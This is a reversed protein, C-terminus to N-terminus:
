WAETYRVDFEQLAPLKQKLQEFTHASLKTSNLNLKRLSTMASLAAIGKDSVQTECLNLVQLKHLHEAIMVLGSDGFQTAWLNLYRLAPLKILQEACASTVHTFALSLCELNGFSGCSLLRAIDADTSRSPLALKRPGGKQQLEKLHMQRRCLAAYQEQGSDTSQLTTVVQMKQDEQTLLEWELMLCLAEQAVDSDRLALLLCAGLHKVLQVLFRKRRCCCHLLTKLMTDWLLGEDVCALSSPCYIQFWGEKGERIGLVLQHVECRPDTGIHEIVPMLNRVFPEYALAEDPFPIPQLLQALGPRWDDYKSITLLVTLYCQLQRETQEGVSSDLENRAELSRRDEFSSFVAALCVAVLNPMVRPHPCTSSPGHVSTVFRRLVEDGANQSHLACIYDQVLRRMHPSKGFDVNHKLIRQVVPTLREFVSPSRPHAACHQSFFRCLEASPATNDLLPALITTLQESEGRNTWMQDEALLRSVIEMPAHTVCEDQLPTNTALEILNKWLISYYWQDRTYANNAQLLLSGDEVVIRICYRNGIDWRAVVYVEEMSSYPVSSEMFGSPTKSSICADNLYIHHSEWRRLFKSSLIKSVVTRTHNLYCVQIDGERLLKFRPGVGPAAIVAPALAASVAASVPASPSSEASIQCLSSGSSTSSASLPPTSDSSRTCSNSRSNGGSCSSSRSSSGRSISADSNADAVADLEPTTRPSSGQVVVVCEQSSHGGATGPTTPSTAVAPTPVPEAMPVPQARERRGFPSHFCFM